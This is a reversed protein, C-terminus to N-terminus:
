TFDEVKSWELLENFTNFIPIGKKKALKVEADAGKSKGKIRWVADCMVLWENEYEYWDKIDRTVLFDWFGTLHPIFPMMGYNFIMNGHRVAERINWITDGNTYPGAIYVKPKM